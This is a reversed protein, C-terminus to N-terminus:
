DATAPKTGKVIPRLLLVLPTALATIWMMAWFDDIYAIMFAQRNIEIDILHLVAEGYSGFRDLTGADIIELSGATINAGLDAHSVQLNFGLLTTFISIGLSAGLSRFLNLLSAADTRYQSALTGFALTNLPIFVLGMGLGQVLGSILVPKM